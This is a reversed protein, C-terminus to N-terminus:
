FAYRVSVGADFALPTDSGTSRKFNTADRLSGSLGLAFHRDLQYWEVGLRGSFYIGLREADGHGIIGLANTRIDAKSVGAAGQLFVGVRRTFRVTGRAGVGFGYIPFARTRPPPQSRSTDTFALEGEGFVMLWDLFEYGLQTRLLPAPPATKGFQGLYTLVGLSSDLVLTRRYPPPPPAEPPPEAPASLAESVKDKELDIAAPPIDSPSTRTDAEDASAAAPLALLACAFLGSKTARHSCSAM